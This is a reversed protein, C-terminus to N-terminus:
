RGADKVRVTAGPEPSGASAPIVLDGEGLGALIETQADGRLGVRVSRREVRGGRVLLVWPARGTVDRIADSAAVLATDRRLGALEVSVTMDPRLFAPPSPVMLRV